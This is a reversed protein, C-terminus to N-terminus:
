VTNGRECWAERYNSAMKFLNSQLPKDHKLAGCLQEGGDSEIVVGNFAEASSLPGTRLPSDSFRNIFARRPVVM